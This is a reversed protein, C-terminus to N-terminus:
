AELHGECTNGHDSANTGDPCTSQAWSQSSFTAGIFSAGTLDAGAFSSFDLTAYSFNANTLVTRVFSAHEITSRSLNVGTLNARLFGTSELRAGSLNANQLNADSFTSNAISVGSLDADQFNAEKFDGNLECAGLVTGSLDPTIGADHDYTQALLCDARTDSIEGGDRVHDACEAESTFPTLDARLLNQWAGDQCQAVPDGGPVDLSRPPAATGAAPLVMTLCLILMAAALTRRAPRHLHRM